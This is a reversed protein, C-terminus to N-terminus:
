KPHKKREVEIAIVGFEKEQGETYFKRYVCLGQEVSDVNPLIKKFNEKELMEGFSSYIRTDKVRVRVNETEDDNFILIEDGLKLEKYLNKAVRGEITKIGAKVFGFYPDARHNKYLIVGNKLEEIKKM